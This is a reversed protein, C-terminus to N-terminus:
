WVAVVAESPITVEGQTLADREGATGTLFMEAPFRDTDVRLPWAGRDRLADAVRDVTYHDHRHTLILVAPATM